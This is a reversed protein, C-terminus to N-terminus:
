VLMRALREKRRKPVEQGLTIGSLPVPSPLWSLASQRHLPEGTHDMMEGRSFVFQRNLPVVHRRIDPSAFIESSPLAVPFSGGRVVRVRYSHGHSAPLAPMCQTEGPSLVM